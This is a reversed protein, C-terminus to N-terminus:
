LVRLLRCTYIYMYIYILINILKNIYVITGYYCPRTLVIQHSNILYIRPWHSHFIILLHLENAKPEIEETVNQWNKNRRSMLGSRMHLRNARRKVDVAWREQHGSSTPPLALNIVWVCLWLSQYLIHNGQFNSSIAADVNLANYSHRRSNTPWKGQLRDM